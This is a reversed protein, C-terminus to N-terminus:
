SRRYSCPVCVLCDDNHANVFGYEPAGGPLVVKAEHCTPCVAFVDTRTDAWVVRVPVTFDADDMFAFASALLGMLREDWVSACVGSFAITAPDIDLVPEGDRARVVIAEKTETMPENDDTM